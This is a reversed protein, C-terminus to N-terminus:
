LTLVKGKTILLHGTPFDKLNLWYGMEGPIKDDGELKWEHSKGLFNNGYHKGLLSKKKIEM